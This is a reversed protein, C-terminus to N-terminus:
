PNATIESLNTKMIYTGTYLLLFLFLIENGDTPRSHPHGVQHANETRPNHVQYQLVTDTSRFVSQGREPPTAHTIEGPIILIPTLFTYM